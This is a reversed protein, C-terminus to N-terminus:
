VVAMNRRVVENGVEKDRKGAISLGKDIDNKCFLIEDHMGFLLKWVM